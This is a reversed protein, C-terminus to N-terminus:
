GPWPATPSCEVIKAEKFKTLQQRTPGEM